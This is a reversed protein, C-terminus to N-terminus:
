ATMGAFAEYIARIAAEFDASDVGIIINLESSGQDIMRINVGAGALATFMAAATGTRRSMGHGVTAILSMGTVVEIRDPDLTAKLGALMEDMIEKTVHGAEFLLTLTDIGSPMHEISVSYHELVSLARRAFGLESNMMSKEIHIATFDKKGAIGTIIRGTKVYNKSPVIMTGPDTPSFTNRINIPIDSKRVPFISDPHLVEAGMYSLERLEKYSMIGITECDTVIKPDCIKFGSIDTWNEYVSARVARAIIAGSVDSGGRSFTKVEGDPTCGYFGPIVATRTKKLALSAVDNTYEADFSGNPFFLIIKASDIFTYKLLSAFIMASLYEGRSAAYDATAGSNIENRINTLHKAINIKLGLEETIELFRKEVLDFYESCDGKEKAAKASKYLLDTVKADGPFRKGPASVIVYRREKEALIVSASQRMAAATAMSTGGFKCVKVAM